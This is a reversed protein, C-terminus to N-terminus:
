LVAWVVVLAIVILASWVAAQIESKIFGKKHMRQEKTTYDRYLQM